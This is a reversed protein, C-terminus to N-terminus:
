SKTPKGRSPRSAGWLTGRIDWSLGIDNLIRM